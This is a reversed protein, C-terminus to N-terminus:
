PLAETKAAPFTIHERLNYNRPVSWVEKTTDYFGGGLKTELENERLFSRTGYRKHAYRNLDKVSFEYNYRKHKVVVSGCGNAAAQGSYMQALLRALRPASEAGYKDLAPCNGIIFKRPTVTKVGKLVKFESAPVIVKNDKQVRPQLFKPNM